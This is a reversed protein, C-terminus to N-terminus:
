KAPPTPVAGDPPGVPFVRKVLAELATFVGEVGFGALFCIASTSLSVQGLLGAGTTASNGNGSIFLGICAGIVAGLALQILGLVLDRPMLVNTSMKNALSREIAALAGLLGYLIPLITGALVGIMVAAWAINPVKNHAKDESEYFSQQDVGGILYKMWANEDMWRMLNRTAIQRDQLTGATPPPVASASENEITSAADINGTKSLPQPTREIVTTDTVDNLLSSATVLRWSMFCTFLLVVVLCIHIAFYMWRYLGAHRYLEPFAYSSLCKRPGGSGGLRDAPPQPLVADDSAPLDRDASGRGFWSRKKRTSVDDISDGSMMKTFAISAGSAPLAAINLAEKARILRAANLAENQPKGPMPPWRIECIQEIWSKGADNAFLPDTSLDPVRKSAVASVNDLLLYVEALEAVLMDSGIKAFSPPPDQDAMNADDAM